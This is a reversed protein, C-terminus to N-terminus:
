DRTLSAFELIRLYSQKILRVILAVMIALLNIYCARYSGEGVGNLV